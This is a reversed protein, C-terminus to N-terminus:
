IDQYNKIVHGDVALINKNEKDYFYREVVDFKPMFNVLIGCPKSLLRMYNFLQARHSPSLEPVAKLEVIVDERCLFDVRFTAQLTVGKFTPHFSLERKYPIAENKLQLELAEQYCSENLGPGLYKHVDHIAGVIDYMRRKETELDIM